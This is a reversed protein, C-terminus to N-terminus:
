ATALEMLEGPLRDDLMFVEQFIRKQTRKLERFIPGDPIGKWPTDTPRGPLYEEAFSPVYFNLQRGTATALSEAIEIGDPDIDGFHNWRASPLAKIIAAAAEVDAGPAYIAMATIPLPLDVYAGLNECTIILTPLTGAIGTFGLWLREPLVCETLVSAMAYLDLDEREFSARLGKNPRCRVAWDRTLTATSAIQPLHKPGLGAAANWTRRNVTGTMTRQKKLIPLAEISRPDYPNLEISKLFDFDVRWSPALDTLREEVPIAADNRLRWENKRSTPEIWRATNFRRVLQENRAVLKIAGNELLRGLSAIELADSM